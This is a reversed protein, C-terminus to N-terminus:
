SAPWCSRRSTAAPSAHRGAHRHGPRPRRVGQGEREAFEALYGLQLTGRRSSRRAPALPRAHPERRDHVRRRPRRRQPGRPRLRRRRRPSQRVSLRGVSSTGDLVISAPSAAAPPRAAGRDARDPRQGARRRDRPDRRRARQLQRRRRRRQGLPDIVRSTRRRRARRRRADAPEKHVTLEVARGVMMSPWSPTPPPRARGRRRGQRPPHGHHPRRGRAGRAAQPHHLRHGHGAEKLQRM